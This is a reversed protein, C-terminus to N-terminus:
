WYGSGKKDKKWDKYENEKKNQDTRRKEQENLHGKYYDDRKGWATVETAETGPDPYEM